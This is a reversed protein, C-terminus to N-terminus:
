ICNSLPGATNINVLKVIRSVLILYIILILTLHVHLIILLFHFLLILSSDDFRTTGTKASSYSHSVIMEVYTEKPVVRMELVNTELVLAKMELSLHPEDGAGCTKVELVLHM